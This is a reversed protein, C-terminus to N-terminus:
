RFTNRATRSWSARAWSEGDSAMTRTEGAVLAKDSDTRMLISDGTIQKESPGLVKTVDDTIQKIADETLEDDKQSIILLDGQEEATEATKWSFAACFDKAPIFVVGDKVPLRPRWTEARKVM